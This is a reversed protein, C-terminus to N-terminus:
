KSSEVSIRRSARVDYGRSSGAHLPRFHILHGM